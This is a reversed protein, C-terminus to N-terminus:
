RETVSTLRGAAEICNSQQQLGARQTFELDDPQLSLDAAMAYLVALRHLVPRRLPIPQQAAHDHDVLRRAGMAADQAVAAAGDDAARLELRVRTRRDEWVQVDFAM